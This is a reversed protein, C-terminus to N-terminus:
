KKFIFFLLILVASIGLILALIKWFSKPSKGTVKGTQGNIYCHYDKNKYNYHNAWLPAYIYGNKVNNFTTTAKFFDVDDYRFNLSTKIKSHEKSEIENTTENFADQINLDSEIGSFGLLYDTSYPMTQDFQYDNINEFMSSNFNKNASCIYNQYTSNETDSIRYTSTSITKGNKDKRHNSCMASYKTTANLDFIFIPSYFGSIKKLKAYKKLNNPAFKRSKIWKQFIECAKDNSIKFPLIEMPHIGSKQIEAFDLNGCSPCRTLEKNYNIIKSSCTKCEYIKVEDKNEEYKFDPSYDVKIPRIDNPKNSINFHNECYECVLDSTEPNFYLHGGCDKCKYTKKM